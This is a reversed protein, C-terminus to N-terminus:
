CIVYPSDIKLLCSPWLCHMHNLGLVAFCAEACVSEASMRSAVLKMAIRFSWSCRVWSLSCSKSSINRNPFGGGAKITSLCFLPSAALINLRHHDWDRTSNSRVLGASTRIWHKVVM